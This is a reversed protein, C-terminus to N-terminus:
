EMEGVHKHAATTNVRVLGLKEEVKVFTMDMFIVCVVFGGRAYLQVVKMLSNALNAATRSPTHEVTFLKIGRSLTTLFGTGSVFMVDATLTVFYHLEYFDRPTVLYEPEVREPKKMTTKGRIGSRSRGFVHVANSVDNPQVPLEKVTKSSVMKHLEEDTPHAMMAQVQRALMAQKIQKKTFGEFNKCVTEIM